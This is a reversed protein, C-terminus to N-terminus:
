VQCKACFHTGRGAVVVRKIPTKCVLCPAGERGYVRHQMHFLGPEDDVNFYDSISSGGAAIAESLVKCVSEYLRKLEAQTLSSARRRPRIGARFLSEDAYINGVGRLLKQNLLASKIPTNRHHFLSAFQQFDVDLPERGGAEFNADPEVWIRGFRRPDVFRMERGSALTAILHTHRLQEADASTVQVRGTMGLHLILQARNKRRKGGNHELDFVIHKGQRHVSKIRAGELTSAIETPPSKFLPALGSLWVSEITDGTVRQALGRTVTEVEPLEPVPTTELKRNLTELTLRLESQNESKL